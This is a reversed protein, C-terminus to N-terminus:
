IGKILLQIILTVAVSLGAIKAWLDWQREDQREIQRNLSSEMRKISDKVEGIDADVAIPLMSKKVLEDYLFKGSNFNTWFENFAEDQYQYNQTAIRENKENFVAFQVNASLSIGQRQIVLNEFVFRQSQAVTKVENLELVM